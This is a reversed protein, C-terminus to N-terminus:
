RRMRSKLHIKTQNEPTPIETENLHMTLIIILRSMIKVNLILLSESLLNYTVKTIESYAQENKLGKL